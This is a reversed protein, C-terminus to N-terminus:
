LVVGKATTVGDGADVREAHLLVTLQDGEVEVHGYVDFGLDVTDIELHLGLQEALSITEERTPEVVDVWIAREPIERPASAALPVIQGEDVVYATIEM